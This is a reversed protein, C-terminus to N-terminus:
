IDNNSLGRQNASYKRCYSYCLLGVIFEFLAVVIAVYEGGWHSSTLYLSLLFLMSISILISMYERDGGLLLLRTPYVSFISLALMVALLGELFVVELGLIMKFVDISYIYKLIILMVLFISSAIFYLSNMLVAKKEDGLWQHVFQVYVRRISFVVLYLKLFVFINVLDADNLLPDIVPIILGKVSSYIFFAGGLQAVGKLVAKNPMIWSLRVRDSLAVISILSTIVSFFVFVIFYIYPLEDNGLVVGFFSIVVFVLYIGSVKLFSCFAASLQRDRVYLAYEVGLSLLLSSSFVLAYELEGLFFFGLGLVTLFLSVLIRLVRADNLSAPFTAESILLRPFYQGVGISLTGIVLMFAADFRAISAVTSENYNNTIYALFWVSLVQGVGVLMFVSVLKYLYKKM